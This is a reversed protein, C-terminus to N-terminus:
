NEYEKLFDITEVEKNAPLIDSNKVKYKIDKLQSLLRGDHAAPDWLLVKKDVKKGVIEKLKDILDKPSLYKDGVAASAQRKKNLKSAM